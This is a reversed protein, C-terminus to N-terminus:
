PLKPERPRGTAPDIQAMIFDLVKFMGEIEGAFQTRFYDRVSACGAERAAQAYNGHLLTNRIKRVAEVGQAQDNWPLRILGKGIAKQLLAPLTDREKADTLVVRVFHEMTLCTLAAEAFMLMNGQPDGERFQLNQKRLLAIERALEQLARNEDKFTSVMPFSVESAPNVM